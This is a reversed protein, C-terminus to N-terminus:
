TRQGSLLRLMRKDKVKKNRKTDFVFLFSVFFAAQRLSYEAPWEKTRSITVM